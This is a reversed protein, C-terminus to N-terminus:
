PCSLAPEMNPSPLLTKLWDHRAPSLSSEPPGALTSTLESTRSLKAGSVLVHCALIFSEATDPPSWNVTTTSQASWYAPMTLPHPLLAPLTSKTRESERSGRAAWRRSSTKKSCQFCRSTRPGRHTVNVRSRSDTYKSFYRDPPNGCM